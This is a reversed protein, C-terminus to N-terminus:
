SCCTAEQEFQRLAPRLIDSQRPDTLLYAPMKCDTLPAGIVALPITRGHEPGALLRLQGRPVLTLSCAM